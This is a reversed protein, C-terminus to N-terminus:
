ATSTAARALREVEAVLKRFSRSGRAAADIDVIAALAPQHLVEVYRDGELMMRSVAGKADRLAEPDPPPTLDARFRGAAALAETSALFFAEFERHAMVVGVPLATAGTATAAVEPALDAPCDDDSDFLFLVAAAGPRDREAIEVLRKIQRSQVIQGRRSRIPRAVVVGEVGLHVLLRRLLTPVAEVEAHGEVIPVIAPTM